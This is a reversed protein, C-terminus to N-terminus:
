DMLESPCNQWQGDPQLVECPRFSAKYAMSPSDKVWYGLYYYPIGLKLAVSIEQLAGYVGLRRKAAAPDFFFYVSSLSKPCVDCIGVALLVGKADRYTFEVSDVPSSYLFDEFAARDEKATGHWEGQYRQYLLWNEDTSAPHNMEVTLDHNLRACRRQSKNSQFKEVPVRLTCCQRCGPCVPQYILNGSRRFNADMFNHYLVGPLHDALFARTQAPRDPLYPCPHRPLVTLRVSVPPALSPYPCSSPTDASDDPSPPLAAPM